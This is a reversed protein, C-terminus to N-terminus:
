EPLAAVAGAATGQRLIDSITAGNKPTNLRELGQMIQRQKPLQGAMADQVFDGSLLKAVGMGTPLTATPSIFSMPGGLMLTSIIRSANNPVTGSSRGRLTKVLENASGLSEVGEAAVEAERLKLPNADITDRIGAKVQTKAAQNAQAPTQLKGRGKSLKRNATSSLWEDSTFDGGKKNGAKGVAKDLTSYGEWISMDEKYKALAAPNTEGLQTTLMDDVKDKIRLFAARQTDDSARNASRAYKNRLEMLDAGEIKGGTEAFADDFDKSLNSLYKAGDTQLMPDDNFLNNIDDRVTKPDFSFIENKADEFAHKRMWADMEALGDQPNKGLISAKTEADMRAPLVSATAEQRFAADLEDVKGAAQGRIVKESEKTQQRAVAKALVNAKKVDVVKEAADAVFPKAKDRLSGGGYANEVTKRYFNGMNSDDSAALTIPIRHGDPQLMQQIKPNARTAMKTLQGGGSIAAPIVAGITAGTLGGKARNGQDATAAGAVGGEASGVAMAALAKNLASKGVVNKVAQTGLVKAGGYGGTALGGAINLGLDTKPNAKAFAHRQGQARQMSSNYHDAFDGEHGAIKSALAGLGSGVEDALGFSAGQGFANIGGLIDEGWTREAEPEAEVTTTGARKAAVQSMLRKRRVQAELEARDTM